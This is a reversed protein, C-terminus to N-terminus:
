NEQHIVKPYSYIKLQKTEIQIEKIKFNKYLIEIMEKVAEITNIKKTETIIRELVTATEYEKINVIDSVKNALERYSKKDKIKFKELLKQGFNKHLFKIQGELFSPLVLNNMNEFKPTYIEETRLIVEENEDILIEFSYDRNSFFVNILYVFEVRVDINDIKRSVKDILSLDIEDSIYYNNLDVFSNKSSILMDSFFNQFNNKEIFDSFDNSIFVVEDKTKYRNDLCPFIALENIIEDIKDYFELNKLRQNLSDHTLFELAQYSISNQTLAKAIEVIFGVLKELIYKNKENININNRSSDLEFTGHIIFPFDINIETPFFSYLLYKEDTNFEDKVAIKLDFHETEENEDEKPLLTDGTYEFITWMTDNLYIQNNEKIREIIKQNNDIEITLKELHNVFLLVENKINDLQKQIDNLFKDKYKIIISTTWHNSPENEVKPLSLFAIKSVDNNMHKKYIEQSIKYSFDIQMNNTLITIQKSWNVISRFGLGKNGIYTKRNTDRKKPSYNPLM